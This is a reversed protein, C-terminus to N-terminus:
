QGPYNFGIGDLRIGEKALASAYETETTRLPAQLDVVTSLERLARLFDKWRALMPVLSCFASLIRSGLLSCSTLGGVSLAQAEVRYAGAVLLAVTSFSVAVPIIQVSVQSWLRARAAARASSSSPTKFADAAASAAEPTLLSARASLVDVLWTLKASQSRNADRQSRQALAQFLATVAMLLMGVALPILVLWGGIWAVAGVFLFLFPFDALPLLFQASLADRTAAVERYRNLVDGVPLPKSLPAALIGRALRDDLHADWRSGAHEVILVRALRLCIELAFVLVMGSALAWLTDHLENGIAKDYVLMSFLPLALLFTNVLLSSLLLEFLHRRNRRLFLL